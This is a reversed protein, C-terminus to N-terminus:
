PELLGSINSAGSRLLDQSMGGKLIRLARVKRELVDIRRDIYEEVYIERAGVCQDAAPAKQQTASIDREISGRDLM